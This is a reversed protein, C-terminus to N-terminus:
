HTAFLDAEVAEILKLLRKVAVMLMCCLLVSISNVPHHQLVSPMSLSVVCVLRLATARVQLQAWLQTDGQMDYRQMSCLTPLLWPNEPGVARERM